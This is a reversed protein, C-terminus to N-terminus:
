NDDHASHEESAHGYGPLRRRFEVGQVPWTSLM